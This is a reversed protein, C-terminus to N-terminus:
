IAFQTRIGPSCCHFAPSYRPIGLGKAFEDGGGWSGDRELVKKLQAYITFVFHTKKLHPAILPSLRFVTKVRCKFNLM